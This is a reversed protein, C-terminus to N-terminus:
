SPLDQAEISGPVSFYKVLTRPNRESQTYATPSSPSTTRKSPSFHGLSGSLRSSIAGLVQRGGGLFRLVGDKTPGRKFPIQGIFISYSKAVTGSYSLQYLLHSNVVKGPTRTEGRSGNTLLATNLYRAGKKKTGM